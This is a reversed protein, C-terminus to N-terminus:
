ISATQSFVWTELVMLSYLSLSIFGRNTLAVSDFLKMTAIPDAGRFHKPVPFSHAVMSM